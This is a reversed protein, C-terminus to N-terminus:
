IVFITHPPHNWEVIEVPPSFILSETPRQPFRYGNLVDPFLSLKDSRNFASLRAGQEPSHITQIQEIDRSALLHMLWPLQTGSNDPLM